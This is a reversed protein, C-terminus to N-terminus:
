YVLYKEMDALLEKAKAQEAIRTDAEEGGVRLM